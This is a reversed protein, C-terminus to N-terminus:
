LSCVNRKLAKRHKDISQVYLIRLGDMTHFASCMYSGLSPWVSVSFEIVFLCGCGLRLLWIYFIRGVEAPLKGSSCVARPVTDQVATTELWSETTVGCCCTGLIGTPIHPCPWRASQHKSRSDKETHLNVHIEMETATWLHIAPPHPLTGCVGVSKRIKTAIFSPEMPLTSFGNELLRLAIELFQFAHWMWNSTSHLGALYM